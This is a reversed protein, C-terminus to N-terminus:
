CTRSTIDSRALGIGALMRDLLKGAAGVFPEGQADERAGPAEGVLFIDARPNGSGFVLNTRSAHLPCRTCDGLRKRITPLSM